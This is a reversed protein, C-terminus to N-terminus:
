GNQRAVFKFSFVTNMDIIDLTELEVVVLIIELMKVM